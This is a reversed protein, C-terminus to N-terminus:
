FLSTYYLRSDEQDSQLCRNIESVFKLFSFHHLCILMCVENKNTKPVATAIDQLLILELNMAIYVLAVRIM